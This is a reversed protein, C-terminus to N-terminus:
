GIPADQPEEIYERLIALQRKPMPGLKDESYRALMRYVGVIETQMELIAETRTDGAMAINADHWTAIWEGDSPIVEVAIPKKLALGWPSLTAIKVESGAGELAGLRTRLDSLQKFVTALELSALM